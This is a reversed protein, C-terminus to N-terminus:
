AVAPRGVKEESHLGTGRTETRAQVRRKEAEVVLPGKEGDRVEIRTWSDEPLEACWRDVRQFPDKHFLPSSAMMKSIAACLLNFKKPGPKELKQGTVTRNGRFVCPNEPMPCPWAM